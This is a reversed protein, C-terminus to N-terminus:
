GITLWALAVAGAGVGTSAVAHTRLRDLLAHDDADLGCAESIESGAECGPLFDMAVHLFVGAAFGFVAGSVAPVAPLSLLAAPVATLGVGAAPLLLVSPPSGARALRGAAAYGAPGKHSVVALGLLLSLDPLVAYTLGVIAGAALAHATIQAATVDFPTDLHGLRHGVTHGAYGLLLGGAVGFGGAAPDYDIAQPLLFVAASTVMAGSALGYGWVVRRPAAVRNHGGLAAGLAMALFAVWAVVLVKWLGVTWGLVSLGALGATSALGTRSVRTGGTRGEVTEPTGM